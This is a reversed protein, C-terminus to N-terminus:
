VNSFSPLESLIKNIGGHFQSHLDLLWNAALKKQKRLNQYVRISFEMKVENSGWQLLLVVKWVVFFGSFNAKLEFNSSPQQMTSQCQRIEISIHELENKLEGNQPSLADKDM